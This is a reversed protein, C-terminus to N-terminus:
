QNLWAKFEPSTERSVTVEQLTPPTLDLKLKGGFFKHIGTISKLSVIFQRNARFFQAPNLENQLQELTQEIVFKKGDLRILNTLKHESFFYAVDQISIMILEDRFAVLFRSRYTTKKEILNELLAEVDLSVPQFQAKLSNLKELSRKLDGKDIPKLLYDISNVKFAQLAYDDYATTFIVPCELKIQKFVEFSIGDSLQIDFFALDPKSHNKFWSVTSSISDLTAVVRISGDYEELMKQLRKAALTEDEVIVVNM